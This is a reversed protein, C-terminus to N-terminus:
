RLLSGPPAMVAVITSNVTFLTAPVASLTVRAAIEFGAPVIMGVVPFTFGYAHPGGAAQTGVWGTVGDPTVGLTTHAARAILTGAVTQNIRERLFVNLRLIRLAASHEIELLFSLSSLFLHRDSPPAFVTHFAEASGLYSVRSQAVRAEPPFRILEEDRPRYLTDPFIM